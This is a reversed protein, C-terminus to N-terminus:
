SNAKTILLIRIKNYIYKTKKDYSILNNAKKICYIACSHNALGFYNSIIRYPLPEKNKQFEMRALKIALSRPDSLHYKKSNNKIEEKKIKYARTVQQSIFDLYQTTTENDKTSRGQLM